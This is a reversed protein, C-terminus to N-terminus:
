DLGGGSREAAIRERGEGDAEERAKGVKGAQTGWRGHCRYACVCEGPARILGRQRTIRVEAPDCHSDGDDEGGAPLLRLSGRVLAHQNSEKEGAPEARRHGVGGHDDHHTERM